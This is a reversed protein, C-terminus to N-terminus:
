NTIDADIEKKNKTHLSIAYKSEDGLYIATMLLIKTERWGVSREKKEFFGCM